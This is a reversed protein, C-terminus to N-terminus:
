VACASTRTETAFVAVLVDVASRTASRLVARLVAAHVIDAVFPRDVSGTSPSTCAKSVAVGSSSAASSSPCMLSRPGYEKEMRAALEFSDSRPKSAVVVISAASAKAILACPTLELTLISEVSSLADVEWLRRTCMEPMIPASAFISIAAPSSPKSSAAAPARSTRAPLRVTSAPAWPAMLPRRLAAPAPLSTVMVPVPCSVSFPSTAASLLMVISTACPLPAPKVMAAVASRWVVDPPMIEMSASPFIASLLLMPSSLVPRVAM